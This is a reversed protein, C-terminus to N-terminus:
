LVTQPPRIAKGLCCCFVWRLTVEVDLPTTQPCVGDPWDSAGSAPGTKMAVARHSPPFRLRTRKRGWGRKPRGKVTGKKGGGEGEGRGRRM